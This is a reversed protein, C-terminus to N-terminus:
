DGPGRPLEFETTTGAQPLRGALLDGVMRTTRFEALVIRLIATLPAALLMGVIGWLLGWFVLAALITVPSLDLRDGMLKPDLVNGIAFQVILTLVFIGLVPGATEYQVIAVPLPLLTAVISGISPIFNLFFALVGFVLALELGFLSLIIGVITGTAASLLFKLILYRRIGADIQRFVRSKVLERNRGLLLFVVFILVLTGNTVLALATGATTQLLRGVPLERASEVLADQSIDWGRADLFEAVRGGWAILRERYIDASAALGRASTMVLLGVLVIGTAVILLTVLTSAWRPFRLRTELLDSLPSVLYYVFIALVLPVMVPRTWALALATAVAALVILSVTMLWAQEEALDRTNFAM